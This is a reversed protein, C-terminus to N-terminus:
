RLPQQSRSRRTSMSTTNHLMLIPLANNLASASLQRCITTNMRGCCRAALARLAALATTAAEADRGAIVINAGLSAIGEAMGLGIGRNGGTVLAVKGTLNFLNMRVETIKFRPDQVLM